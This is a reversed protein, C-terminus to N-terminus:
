RGMWARAKPQDLRQWAAPWRDRAAEALAVEMATLEGAVFARRRGAAAGRLWAQMTVSDQHEGLEEQVAAALKGFRAAEAGLAAAVAEAAYRVRKALIRVRHLEEDVPREDLARVAHRLARWPSRVVAPLAASAPRAAEETLRPEAAAEVLRDVLDFYRQTAMAELLRVRAAAVDSALSEALAAAPRVDPPPLAAVRVLLREYLVEGDRVAGLEGALWGLEERLGEAWERDLLSRFTRLHSRLRRTGVRAQHVHEPDGGLRVLPDHRLVLQIAAALAARVVDGAAPESPLKPVVVDPPGQAAPGLARLYRPVPDAPGAGARRLRDLLVTLLADGDAELDIEVERFRAAVRRGHLVSIEDDVVSALLRGSPDVLEVRRCWNSLRAVPELAAGRSYARVLTAAEDPPRRVPGDFLLEKAPDAGRGPITLTWTRDRHSLSLGWRALRLDPTDFYTTELRAEQEPRAEVGEALGALDPLHFAPAASLTLQREASAPV